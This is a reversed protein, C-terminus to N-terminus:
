FLLGSSLWYYVIYGGAIMLLLASIKQVYPLIKRMTGVVVGEKVLAIGLTLVLLVSGMGLIYSLFQYIGALFNGTAVSSGVVMLFIPLTCSLSTAGFAVGFLFFGSISMERPDGIRGAIKLMFPLSFSRGLLMWGGLLILLGGVVVAMWPMIGMLFSGGASVIIGVVGFLLGFGATVVLTVWCAKLMKWLPSKQRFSSDEAGLYLTLYVPLMAFGCPNVASVMGAGFAYGFPLLGALQSLMQSAGVQVEM